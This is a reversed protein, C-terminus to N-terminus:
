ANVESESPDMLKSESESPDMPTNAESGNSSMVPSTSEQLELDTPPLAQVSKQRLGSDRASFDRCSDPDPVDEEWLGTAYEFIHVAWRLLFLGGTALSIPRWIYNTDPTRLTLIESMGWVAGIAGLVVLLFRVIIVEFWGVFSKFLPRREMLNFFCLCYTGIQLFWRVAALCLVIISVIRWGETNEPTRLTLADMPGWIAGAAGLVELVMKSAFIQFFPLRHLRRHKLKIPPFEKDHELFHKTHWFFRVLFIVFTALSIPRWIYNNEPTRITLIETSGWIAGAAGCVELVLKAIFVQVFKTYDLPVHQLHPPRHFRFCDRFTARCYRRAWRANPSPTYEDRDQGM